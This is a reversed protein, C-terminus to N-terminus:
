NIHGRASRDPSRNHSSSRTHRRPSRRRSPSRIQPREEMVYRRLHGARILEKIKDKLTVYEKTTHGLNQHYQCHKGGDVNKPSHLKRVSLLEVSLAEELIKARPANVATYHEFKPARPFDKLRPDGGKDNGDFSRRDDKRIGSASAKQQRKERSSRMDEIRIFEALREQLEDMTKPPWAYLNKAFSGSRLCSPLNSITFTHNIDKIRRVTENYRKIFARLTEEKEQKTNVLEASTLEQRQNGTYQRRFLTEVIAFCDVINPPLTNYWELAEEKLSLSFARCMVPDSNTYFTMANGFTRLHDDLDTSGDYKDIAPPTKEPIPTQMIAMTFSLLNTPQVTQLPTPERRGRGNPNTHNHSAENDNEHNHNRNATSMSHQASQEHRGRQARLAAIEEAHKRQMELLQAQM